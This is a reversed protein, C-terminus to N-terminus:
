TQRSAILPYDRPVQAKSVYHYDNDSTEIGGFYVLSGTEGANIYHLSGEARATLDVSRNFWARTNMDFIVMSNLMLPETSWGPVTKKNLYGGYYYARGDEDITGAGFAPWAISDSKQKNDEQTRNWTKYIIDYFWISRMGFDEPETAGNYEGGYLYFLKNTEDPWLV